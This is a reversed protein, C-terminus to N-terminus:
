GKLAANYAQARQANKVANWVFYAVVSAVVLGTFIMGAKSSADVTSLDPLQPATAATGGASGTAGAANKVAKTTANKAEQKVAPAVPQGAAKLAMVVGTAEVDAVRRTWGKGFVSFTKLGQLFSSRRACFEKVYPVPALAPMAARYNLSRAVGSNVGFDFEVFDVGTPRADCGMKAWYKQQYISIAVSKPMAKVDDPTAEPLWYKRADAITIGWNTAGGPDRPDNVFGGEYTLTKSIAADRNSATM